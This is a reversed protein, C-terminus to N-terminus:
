DLSDLLAQTGHRASALNGEGPVVLVPGDELAALSATVVDSAEMWQDDPVRARDFNAMADRDHFETITYGPCLCQIRINDKAVEAQLSTSFSNLFAKSAVYVAATPVTFFSATSSVNVIFGGGRERMFPIAAQSLAMTADVHVRVMDMQDDLLVSDFKGLTSFGANNVLYDVPGQQRLSEIVRTRGEVTALDAVLVYVECRDALEDALAKLPAERRGTAIIRDCRDALQRCFAAGIGASAGTVLAITESKSTTDTDSMTM